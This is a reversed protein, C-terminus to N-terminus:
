PLDLTVSMPCHDSAETDVFGITPYREGAAACKLTIGKRLISAHSVGLSKDVLIYDLRSTTDDVQYYHTWGDTENEFPDTLVKGVIDKLPQLNSPTVNFDENLDGLVIPLRGRSKVSAM